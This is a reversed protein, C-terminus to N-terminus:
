CLLRTVSKNATNCAMSAHAEETRGQGLSLVRCSSLLCWANVVIQGACGVVAATLVGHSTHTMSILAHDSRRKCVNCMCCRVVRVRCRRGVRLGTTRSCSILHRSLQMCVFTSTLMAIVISSALAGKQGLWGVRDSRRGTYTCGDSDWPLM